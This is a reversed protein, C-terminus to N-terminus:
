RGGGHCRMGHDAQRAATPPLTPNPPSRGRDPSSRARMLERAAARVDPRTRPWLCGVLEEDEHLAAYFM